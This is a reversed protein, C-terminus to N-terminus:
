KKGTIIIRLYDFVFGFVWGVIFTIITESGSLPYGTTKAVVYIILTLAFACFAGSLIANPRAITGGVIESTKEIVNNHIIKSFTRSGPTLEKQVHSMTKKYSEQLHKKGIPGRRSPAKVQDKETTEKSEVSIAKELAENKAKEVQQETSEKYSEASKEASIKDLQEAANNKLEYNNEQGLPSKEFNNSM